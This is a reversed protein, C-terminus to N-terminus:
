GRGKTLSAAMAALRSHKEEEPADEAKVRRDLSAVNLTKGGPHRDRHDARLEGNEDVYVRDMGAHSAVPELLVWKDDQKGWDFQGGCGKCIAM